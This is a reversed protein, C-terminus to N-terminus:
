YFGSLRPILNLPIGIWMAYVADTSTLAPTFYAEATGNRHSTKDGLFAPIEYELVSPFNAHISSFIRFLV